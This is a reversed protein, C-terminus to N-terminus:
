QILRDLSVEPDDASLIEVAVLAGAVRQRTAALDTMEGADLQALLLRLTSTLASEQEARQECKLCSPHGRVHVTREAM